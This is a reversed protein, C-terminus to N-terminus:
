DIPLKSPFRLQGNVAKVFLEVWRNCFSDGFEDDILKPKSGFQVHAMVPSAAIDANSLNEEAYPEYKPHSRMLPNAMYSVEWWRYENGKGLNTYWLNASWVFHERANQTVKVIAGTLVDWGSQKFADNPIFSFKVFDFSLEADGLSVSRYPIFAYNDFTKSITPVIINPANDQIRQFLINVIESLIEQAEHAIGKRREVENKISLVQAEKMISNEAIKAAAESLAQLSGNTINGGSKLIQELQTKVRELSPRTEPTKRLMMGILTQLHHNSIKSIPPQHHLHQEKLEVQTGVFPPTGVLLTFAICGLAYVDVANTPHILNWQEPAAYSPTLCERLTQLSTTEEIFKAIGFDAIKWVGSHYLVNGPKLDRHVLTPVELLGSVIQILISIADKENFKQSTRIEDQLSKQAKAMVLYNKKSKADQGADFIPIVFHFEKNILEDAIHIERHAEQTIEKVAVECMKESYGAFVIGFGGRPGLRKNTDYQWVGNPLVITKMSFQRM